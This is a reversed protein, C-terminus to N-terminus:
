HTYVKALPKTARRLFLIAYCTDPIPGAVNDGGDDWSGDPKQHALIFEAGEKYWDHAGIKDNQTLVGARELSYLYYYLWKYEGSYEPIATVSFNRDLWALGALVATHNKWPQRMYGLAIAVSSVGGCVMPGYPEPRNGPQSRQSYGWGGEIKPNKPDAKQDKIWWIAAKPLVDAPIAIGADLCARLGLLAYQSNSNDGHKDGTGRKTIAVRKMAKTGTGSKGAPNDHGTVAGGGGGAPAASSNGGASFTVPKAPDPTWTIPSKEMDKGYGWQGNECQMDVLYQACEAIGAQFKERDLAELAMARLAAGYTRRPPKSMIQNFLKIYEPHNLDIGGYILTYLVLEEHTLTKTLPHGIDSFGGPIKGLLFKAGREIAEDVKVPNIAPHPPPHAAQASARSSGAGFLASCAAAIFVSATKM